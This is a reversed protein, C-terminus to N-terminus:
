PNFSETLKLYRGITGVKESYDDKLCFMQSKINITYYTRMSIPSGRFRELQEQLQMFLYNILVM